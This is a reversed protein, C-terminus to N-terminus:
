FSREECAHITIYSKKNIYYEYINNVMSVISVLFMRLLKYSINQLKYDHDLNDQGVRSM